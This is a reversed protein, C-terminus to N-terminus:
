FAFLCVEKGTERSLYESIIERAAGRQNPPAIRGTRVKKGNAKRSANLEERAKKRAEFQERARKASEEKLRQWSKPGMCKNLMIRLHWNFYVVDWEQLDGESPPSYWKVWKFAGHEFMVRGLSVPVGDPQPLHIYVRHWGQGKAQHDGKCGISELIASVNDIRIEFM